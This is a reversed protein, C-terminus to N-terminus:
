NSREVCIQDLIDVGNPIQKLAKYPIATAAARLSKAANPTASVVLIQFVKHADGAAGISPIKITWNGNPSQPNAVSGAYLSNDSPQTIEWLVSGYAMKATGSFAFEKGKKVTACAGDKILPQTIAATSINRDERENAMRAENASWIASGASIITCVLILAMNLSTFRGTAQNQGEGARPPDPDGAARDFGAWTRLLRM